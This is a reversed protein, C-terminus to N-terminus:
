KARVSIVQLYATAGATTTSLRYSSEHSLWMAKVGEASWEQNTEIWEVPDTEPEEVELKVEDVWNKVIIQYRGGGVKFPDGDTQTPLLITRM